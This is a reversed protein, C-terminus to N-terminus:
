LDNADRIARALRDVHPWLDDYWREKDQIASAMARAVTIKSPRTKLGAFNAGLPSKYRDTPVVFNKDPYESEIAGQL